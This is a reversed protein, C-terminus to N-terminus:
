RKVEKRNEVNKKDKPQPAYKHNLYETYNRFGIIENIERQRLEEFMEKMRGM